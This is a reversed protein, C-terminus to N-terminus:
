DEMMGYLEDTVKEVSEKVRLMNDDSGTFQILTSHDDPQYVAAVNDGNVYVPKGTSLTLQVFHYAM